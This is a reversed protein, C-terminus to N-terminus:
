KSDSIMIVNAQSGRKAAVIRHSWYKEPQCMTCENVDNINDEKLGIQILRERVVAKLDLLYKDKNAPNIKYLSNIISSNNNKDQSLLEAMADIVEGGVEFCDKCIAPGIAARIENIDAGLSLMANIANKMIDKATSRWGCHVAAIVKNVPDEMLLPTCDATFIALPLNAEGTVFGDAEILNDPSLNVNKNILDNIYVQSYKGYATRADEKTVIRVTNGHVQAGCVFPISNRDYINDPDMNCARLFRDWNEKVLKEDDGRNMGLNLSEFMGTSVGGTRTSFGHPCTINSSKIVNIM